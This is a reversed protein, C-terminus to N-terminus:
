GLRRWPARIVVLGAALVLLTWLPTAGNLLAIATLVFLCVSIAAIEASRGPWRAATSRVLHRVWSVVAEWGLSWPDPESRTEVLEVPVLRERSTLVSYAENLELLRERAQQEQDLNDSFQHALEWYAEEVSRRNAPPTVNLIKYAESKKMAEVSYDVMHGAPATPFCM